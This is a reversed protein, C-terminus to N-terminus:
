KRPLRNRNKDIFEQLTRDLHEQNRCATIAETVEIRLVGLQELRKYLEELKKSNADSKANADDFGKNIDEKDAAMATERNSAEEIISEKVSSTEISIADYRELLLALAEKVDTMTATNPASAMLSVATLTSLLLTKFMM